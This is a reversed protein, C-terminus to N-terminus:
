SRRSTRAGPSPLRYGTSESNAETVGVFAANPTFFFIQVQKAPSLNDGNFRTQNYWAELTLHDFCDQNRAVFRVVGADTFANRIDFVQGPLQVDHQDQRLGRVEISCDPGLDCGFAADINQENYGSPLRRGHGDFYDDGAMLDYGLRFGWDRGGGWVSQRGNWQSGNTKYVLGTSGHAEFGNEYRPSGLTEVDLFAFGPGYRVSYPGKVVVVNRIISSDIKSVITDLDQRAPFFFAGDLITALEGVHYGRVRTDTIIPSRHQVEVGLASQSKALLDGLDTSARTQAEQGSVAPTALANSQTGSVPAAAATGQAAAASPAAAGGGGGASGFPNGGVSGLSSPVQAGSGAPGTTQEPTTVPPQQV